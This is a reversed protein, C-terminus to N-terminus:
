ERSIFGTENTVPYKLTQGKRSDISKIIKSSEYNMNMNTNPIQITEPAPPRYGLSTHQRITNHHVRWREIM